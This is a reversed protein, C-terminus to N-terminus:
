QRRTLEWTYTTTTGDDGTVTITGQVVSRTPDIPFSFSFDGGASPAEADEAENTNTRDHDPCPSRHVYKHITTGYTDPLSFTITGGGSGIEVYARTQSEYTATTTSTRTIEKPGKYPVANPGCYGEDIKYKDYEHDVLEQNGTVNAIYANAAEVSRDLKGTLQLQITTTTEAYGGNEALNAGSRKDREVRHKRDAKITGTWVGATPDNERRLQFEAWGKGIGRKSISEVRVSPDEDGTQTFTFTASPAGRQSEPTVDGHFGEANLKAHPKSGDQLHVTEATVSVSEGSKLLLRPVTTAVEVCGSNKWHHQATKYMENASNWISPVMPGFSKAVTTADADTMATLKTGSSQGMKPPTRQGGYKGDSVEITNGPIDYKIGYHGDKIKVEKVLKREFASEQGSSTLYADLKLDYHIMEAQDNVHGTLTAQLKFDSVITTTVGNETYTTTSSIKAKGTGATVGNADPCAAVEAGWLMSLEQRFSKGDPKSIADVVQVNKIEVGFTKGDRTYKTEAKQTRTGKADKTEFSKKDSGEARIEKDSETMKIDPKEDDPLSQFGFAVDRWNLRQDIFSVRKTAAKGKVPKAAPAIIAKPGKMESRDTIQNELDDSAKQIVTEYVANSLQEAGEDFVGVAAEADNGFLRELLELHHQGQAQQLMKNFIQDKDTEAVETVLDPRQAAVFIAQALICAALFLPTFISKNIMM